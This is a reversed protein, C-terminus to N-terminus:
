DVTREIFYFAVKDKIVQCRGIQHKKGNVDVIKANDLSYENASGGASEGVLASGSCDFYFHYIQKM